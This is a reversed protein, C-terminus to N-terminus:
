ANLEVSFTIKSSYYFVNGKKFRSTAQNMGAMFGSIGFGEGFLNQNDLVRDLNYLITEHEKEAAVIDTGGSVMLIEVPISEVVQTVTGAVESKGSVKPVIVIFPGENERFFPSDAGQLSPERQYSEIVKINPFDDIWSDGWLTTKIADALTSYDTM